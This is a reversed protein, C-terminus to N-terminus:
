AMQNKQLVVYIPHYTLKVENEPTAYKQIYSNEFDKLKGKTWFQKHISNVGTYKIHQLVKVPNSFHLVQREEAIHLISFYKHLMQLLDTITFYQLGIGAVDKMEKFNDIGYTSFAFYGDENLIRYIKEIFKEMDAFWQVSSTSIVLDLHDPFHINEADGMIFQWDPFAHKEFVPAVAAMVDIAIDNIYFIEPRHHSLFENTLLGTGCGIELVAPPKQFFLHKIQDNLKQAISLQVTAHQQYTHLSRTFRQEIYNKNTM